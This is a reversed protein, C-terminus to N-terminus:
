YVVRDLIGNMFAIATGFNTMPVGAREAMGIKTLMGKRNLMCGGCHVVLKYDGINEPFGTGSFTDIQLGGGAYNNLWSPLKERAIDGKLAHHTHKHHPCSASAGIIDVSSTPIISINNAETSDQM